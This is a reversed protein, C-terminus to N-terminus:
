GNQPAQGQGLLRALEITGAEIRQNCFAFSEQANRVHELLTEVGMEKQTQLISSIKKLRDYHQEYTLAETSAM